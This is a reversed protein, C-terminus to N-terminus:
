RRPAPLGSLLARAQELERPVRLREFVVAASAVSDAADDLRDLAALAEGLALESLAVEWTADLARFGSVARELLARAGDADGGAMLARAELRDAHRPLAHIEGVEAHRRAEAVLEPVEAWAREEAVLSCHAELARAHYLRHDGSLNRLLARARAFDGRRSMAVAAQPMSWLRPREGGGMWADIEALVADAAAREGRAEHILVEAGHGGSAFSPPQAANGGLMARLRAQDALAEDWTGLPVRALVSNALHGLPLAPLDLAEFEAALALVVRYHGVEYASWSATYYTDSIEFPDHVSRTLEVRERDLPEALGYLGRVNMGSSIADIAILELDVRGMRKAIARAQEAALRARDGGEDYPTIGYGFDWCGQAALLRVRAESDESGVCELGLKLYPLVVDAPPQVRMTGSARTPLLVAWGCIDALRAHDDPTESRVIDAAERLAEWATSGDYTSFSAHGITELARARELPTSALELADRGLALARALGARAYAGAAAEAM